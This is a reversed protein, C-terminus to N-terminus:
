VNYGYESRIVQFYDIFLPARFHRRNENAGFSFSNLFNFLFDKFKKKLGDIGIVSILRRLNYVIMLLNVESLVNIKGRMLTFTFGWQRKLIGFQHEVIQQRLKYYDPAALVRSRNEDIVDQYETREIIRGAKNSTCDQRIPCTTCAPTKYTFARYNKRTIFDGAKRMIEGSPCVYYDNEKNYVFEATPICNHSPSTTPM